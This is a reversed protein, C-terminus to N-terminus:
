WNSKRNVIRALGFAEYYTLNHKKQLRYALEREEKTFGKEFKQKAKEAKRQRLKEPLKM